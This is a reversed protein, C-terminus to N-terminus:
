KSQPCYVRLNTPARENQLDALKQWDRCAKDLENSRQYAQARQELALTNKNNIEWAKSFDIIAAAFDSQHYYVLGRKFYLVDEKSFDSLLESFLRISESYNRKYYMQTALEEKSKRHNPAIKLIKWLTKEAQDRNGGNLQILALQWSADVYLSDLQLVREFDQKALESRDVRVLALGRNYFAAVWDPRLRLAESYKFLATEYEGAYYARVGEGYMILAPDDQAKTLFPSLVSFSLFFLQLFRIM